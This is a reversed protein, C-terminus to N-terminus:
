VSTKLEFIECPIEQLPFPSSNPTHRRHTSVMALVGLKLRSYPKRSLTSDFSYPCAQTDQAGIQRRLGLFFEGPLHQVQASPFIPFCRPNHDGRSLNFADKPRVHLANVGMAGHQQERILDCVFEILKELLFISVQGHVIGVV